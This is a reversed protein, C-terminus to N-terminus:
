FCDGIKIALIEEYIREHAEGRLWLFPLIYSGYNNDKCEKIRIDM